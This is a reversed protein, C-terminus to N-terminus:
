RCLNPLLCGNFVGDDAAHTGYFVFNLYCVADEHVRDCNLFPIDSRKIETGRFKHNRKRSM